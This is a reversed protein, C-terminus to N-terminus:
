QVGYGKANLERSNNKLFMDYKHIKMKINDLHRIGQNEFLQYETIGAQEMAMILEKCNRVVDYSFNTWKLQSEYLMKKSYAEKKQLIVM